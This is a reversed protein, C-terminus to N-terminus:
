VRVRWGIKFLYFVLGGLGLMLGSIVVAGIWVNAESVGIMAHRIGDVFYFFPNIRTILAATEPLMTISYFIGGLYTLPTIIFTNLVSLQEFSQAWLGVLMGLLSFIAAVGFIYLFFLFPSALTVAGFLVGVLVILAAVIFSRMMSGLMYGFIIELYSLPAVLLEEISKTFRAFYLSSSSSGFAANIVSLMLIGPFVFTIYPVGIIDTINNGIVVGFIFIYLAASIVPAVLTQVVVRFTRMVERRMMTYVGVTNIQRM